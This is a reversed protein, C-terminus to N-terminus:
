SNNERRTAARRATILEDVIETMTHGGTDLMQRTVRLTGATSPMALSACLSGCHCKHYHWSQTM